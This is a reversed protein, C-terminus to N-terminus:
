SIQNELDVPIYNPNIVEGSANKGYLMIVPVEETSAVEDSLQVTIEFQGWGQENPDLEVETEEVIQSEGQDLKFYAVDTDSKGEGTLQVENNEVKVDVNRFEVASDDTSEPETEAANNEEQDQQVEEQETNDESCGILLTATLAIWVYKM